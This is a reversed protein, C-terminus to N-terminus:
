VNDTHGAIYIDRQKIDKLVSGVKDLVQKGSQKIAAEGSDFLIRDVVDVSLKNKIRTITVQQEDIEKELKTDLRNKIDKLDDIQEQLSQIRDQASSITDKKQDLKDELSKNEKRLNELRTMTEQYSRRSKIVFCGSIMPVLMSIAIMLRLTMADERQIM